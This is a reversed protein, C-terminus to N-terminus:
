DLSESIRGDRMIVTRHGFSAAEPNHTIM